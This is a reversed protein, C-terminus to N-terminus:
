STAIDLKSRALDSDRGPGESRRADRDTLREGDTSPALGRANRQRGCESNDLRRPSILGDRGRTRSDRANTDSDCQVELGVCDACEDEARESWARQIARARGLLIPRDITASMKQTATWATGERQRRRARRSPAPIPGGHGALAM